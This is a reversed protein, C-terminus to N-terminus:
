IGGRAVNILMQPRQSATAAAAKGAFSGERREMYGGLGLRTIQTVPHTNGRNRATHRERGVGMLGLRTIKGPNHPGSTITAKGAFSGTRQKGVAELGLRTIKGPNHPSATEEVKGAFSGAPEVGVGFLGLRTKPM